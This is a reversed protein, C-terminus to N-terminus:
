GRRARRLVSGAVARPAHVSSWVLDALGARAQGAALRHRVRTAAGAGVTARSRRLGEELALASAEDGRARARDRAERFARDHNRFQAAAPLTTTVNDEHRRYGVLPEDVAAAPGHDLLALVFAIDEATRYGEDFGGVRAVVERRTMLTTIRPLPVTLSRMEEPTGRTAPWREGRREGQEDFHWGGTFACSAGPDDVLAAVQLELRRPAWVDDDDLFVLYEGDTAEIGANRAASVGSPRLHLVSGGPVRGVVEDIVDPAPSGDDVVTLRWAPWTQAVVSAVAEDLFRGSRNTAVVVDVLPARDM